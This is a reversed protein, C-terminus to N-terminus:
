RLEEPRSQLTGRVQWWWLRLMEGFMEISHRVAMVRSAEIHRWRVGIEKAAFGWHSALLLLEVDFAFGDLRQATALARALDGPFLKFGCQTDTIETLRLARLMLNFARGMLDRHRPQPTEVLRRAVARSGIAICRRSAAKALIALEEIPASLDADTLLVWRGTSSGFGTRVAAGKGLNRPHKQVRVVIGPLQDVAAAADATRDVSGDDVVIIEAPQWDPHTDLYNTIKELTPPLRSSENLAPIVVSLEVETTNETRVLHPRPDSM